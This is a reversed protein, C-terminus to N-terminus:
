PIASSNLWFFIELRFKDHDRDDAPIEFWDSTALEYLWASHCLAGRTGLTAREAVAKLQVSLFLFCASASLKM